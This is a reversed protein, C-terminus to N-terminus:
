CNRMYWMAQWCYLYPTWMLWLCVTKVLTCWLTYVDKSTYMAAYMAAYMVYSTLLVTLSNVHTMFMSDKRAYMVAYVNKSAYMAAYMVYSTLLVTLSNVHTMCMSDKSAYMVADVDKSAYTAAYMVYSTLLVTLSNVHTMLM